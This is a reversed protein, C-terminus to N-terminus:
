SQHLEDGKDPNEAYNGGEKRSLVSKVKVGPLRGLKGTLAGIDDTTAEVILSIVRLHQDRLNMGQRGLIFESYESLIKSVAVVQSFDEIIVGVIGIRKDM